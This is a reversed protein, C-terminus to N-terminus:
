KYICIDDAFDIFIDFETINVAAMLSKIENAFASTKHNDCNDVDGYPDLM